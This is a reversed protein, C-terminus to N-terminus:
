LRPTWSEKRRRRRYNLVSVGILAAAILVIILPAILGHERYSAFRFGVAAILYCVTAVRRRRVVV